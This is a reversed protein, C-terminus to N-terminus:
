FSCARGSAKRLCAPLSPLVGDAKRGQQVVEAGIPVLIETPMLDELVADRM